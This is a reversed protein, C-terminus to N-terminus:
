FLKYFTQHHLLFTNSKCDSKSLAVESANSEQSIQTIIKALPLERLSVCSDIRLYESRRCLDNVYQLLLFTCHSTYITIQSSLIIGQLLCCFFKKLRSNVVYLLFLKRDCSLLRKTEAHIIYIHRILFFNYLLLLSSSFFIILVNEALINIIDLFFFYALAFPPHRPERLRRLVHYAAFLQPSTCIVKSGHIDSHPLGNLQLSLM